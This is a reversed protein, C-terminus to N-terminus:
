KRGSKKQKKHNHNTSDTNVRNIPQEETSQKTATAASSNKSNATGALAASAASSTTTTTRSADSNGSAGRAGHSTLIEKGEKGDKADKADKGDKADKNEEPGSAATEKNETHSEKYKALAAKKLTEPIFKLLALDEAKQTENIKSLLSGLLVLINAELFPKVIGFGAIQPSLNDCYKLCNYAHVLYQLRLPMSKKLVTNFGFRSIYFYAASMAPPPLNNLSFKGLLFQRPCFNADPNKILHELLKQYQKLDPLYKKGKKNNIHVHCLSFNLSLFLLAHTFNVRHETIESSYVIPVELLAEDIAKIFAPRMKELAAEIRHLILELSDGYKGLDCLVGFRNSLPYEAQIDKLMGVVGGYRGLWPDMISSNAGPRKSLLKGKTNRTLDTIVCVHDVPTGTKDLVSLVAPIDQVNKAREIQLMSLMCASPGCNKYGLLLFLLLNYIFVDFNNGAGDEFNVEANEGAKNEVSDDEYFDDITVDQIINKNKAVVEVIKSLYFSFGGTILRDSRKTSSLVFGRRVIEELLEGSLHEREEISTAVVEDAKQKTEEAKPKTEEKSAKPDVVASQVTSVSQQLKVQPLTAKLSSQEVSM